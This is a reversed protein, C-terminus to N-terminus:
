RDRGKSKQKGARTQVYEYSRSRTQQAARNDKKHAELTGRISSSPRDERSTMKKSSHAFRSNKSETRAQTPHEDNDKLDSIHVQQEEMMGIFVPDQMIDDYTVTEKKGDSSKEQGTAEKTAGKEETREETVVDRDIDPMNMGKKEIERQVM